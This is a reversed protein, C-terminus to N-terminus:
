GGARNEADTSREDTKKREFYKCYLHVISVYRGNKILGSFAKGGIKKGCIACNEKGPDTM